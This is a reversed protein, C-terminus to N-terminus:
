LFHYLSFPMGDPAVMAPWPAQLHNSIVHPDAPQGIKIKPM